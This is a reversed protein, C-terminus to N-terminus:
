VSLMWKNLFLEGFLCEVVNVVDVLVLVAWWVPVRLTLCWWKIYTSWFNKGVSEWVFFCYLPEDFLYQSLGAGNNSVLWEQGYERLILCFFLESLLCESLFVDHNSVLLQQECQSLRLFFFLEGFLLVGCESLSLCCFQAGFLCGSLLVDLKSVLLEWGSERLSLCCFQAGFVCRSLWVDLKIVLLEWVCERLSLSCFWAGFLCSSLWVDLKSVLLEWVCERLSWCCFQAGVLCGALCTVLSQYFCNECVSESVWVLSSSVTCSTHFLSPPRPLVHETILYLPCTATLVWWCFTATDWCSGLLGATKRVRPNGPCLAFCRYCWDLWRDHWVWIVSLYDLKLVQKTFYIVFCDFHGPKIWKRIFILNATSNCM